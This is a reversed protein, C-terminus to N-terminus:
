GFLEALSKRFNHLAENWYAKVGRLSSCDSNKHYKQLTKFDEGGVGEAYQRRRRHSSPLIPRFDPFSPQPISLTKGRQAEPESTRGEGGGGDEFLGWSCPLLLPYDGHLAGFLISIGEKFAM